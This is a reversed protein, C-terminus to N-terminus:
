PARKRRKASVPNAPTEVAQGGEVQGQIVKANAGADRKALMDQIAAIANEIQEDSMAKVGGKQTVELERPVLLVLLKLFIAPSQTMVKDIAKRGGRQFALHMERITDANLAKRARGPDGGPLGSFGPAFRGNIRPSKYGKVAKPDGVPETPELQPKPLAKPM